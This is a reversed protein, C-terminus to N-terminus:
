TILTNIADTKTKAKMNTKINTIMNMKKKIMKM